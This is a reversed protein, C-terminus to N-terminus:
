PAGGSTIDDTVDNYDNVYMATPLREWLARAHLFNSGAASQFPPLPMELGGVGASPQRSRAFDQLLALPVADDRGRRCPRCLTRADVPHRAQPACSLRCFRCIKPLRARGFQM